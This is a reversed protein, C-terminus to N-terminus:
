LRERGKPDGLEEVDDDVVGVGHWREVVEAAAELYASAVCGEKM